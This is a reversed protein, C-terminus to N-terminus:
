NSVTVSNDYYTDKYYITAKNCSVGSVAWVKYSKGLSFNYSRFMYTLGENKYSEATYYDTDVFVKYNKIDSSKKMTVTVTGGTGTVNDFESTKSVTDLINKTSNVTLTKLPNNYCTVTNINKAKSLNLTTLKNNECNVEKLKTNKEGVKLTTVKNDYCQLATLKTNKTVDISKLSSNYGASFLKLNPNHSTDVSKIATDAFALTKLKSNKSIDVKSLRSDDLLVLKQLNPVNKFNVSTLNGSEYISLYTAKKLTPISLKKANTSLRIKKISGGNKPVKFSSL